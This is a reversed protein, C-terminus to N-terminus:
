KAHERISDFFDALQKRVEQTTLVKGAAEDDLGRQIAAIVRARYALDEQDDVPVDDVRAASSSM